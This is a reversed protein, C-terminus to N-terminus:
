VQNSSQSGQSGQDQFRVTRGTSSVRSRASTDSPVPSGQRPALKKNSSGLNTVQAANVETMRGQNHLELAEMVGDVIAQYNVSTSTARTAPKKATRALESADMFHRAKSVTTAFDDTAAHLRLYKQLDLDQTGDAFKRRLLSDAEPSKIDVKPWAERHLM